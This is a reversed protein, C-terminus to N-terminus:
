PLQASIWGPDFHSVVDGGTGSVVPRPPGVTGDHISLWRVGAQTLRATNAAWAPHGWLRDNVMPIALIPVGDGLAESLVGHAYTDAIGAAMKGVTNFTVPAIVVVDPQARDSSGVPRHVSRPPDGTAATLADEDAWSAASPTMVVDLRWGRAALDAAIEASRAALPAGCVVLACLGPM